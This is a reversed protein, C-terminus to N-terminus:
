DTDAHGMVADITASGRAPELERNRLLKVVDDLAAEWRRVATEEDPGIAVVYVSFAFGELTASFDLMAPRMVCELKADDHELRAGRRVIRDLKEQHQHASAFISRERFVLDIYSGFGFASEEPARAAELGLTALEESHTEWTMSWTDCKATLFPSRQANLSRLARGLAPAHEAEGIEALEYPDARLDVFHAGTAPDNWPVVLMPADAGCEANWEALM